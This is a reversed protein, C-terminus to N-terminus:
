FLSFRRILRPRHEAIMPQIIRWMVRNRDESTWQERRSRRSIRDLLCYWSAGRTIQSVGMGKQGSGSNRILRFM